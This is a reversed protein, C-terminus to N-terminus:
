KYWKIEKRNFALLGENKMKNMVENVKQRTSNTLQAIDKNTLFLDMQYYPGIDEGFERIFRPFFERIREEYTKFLLNQLRYELRKIKLGTLKLLYNHLARNKDMLEHLIINPVKCVRAKNLCIFKEGDEDEEAIFSTLGFLSGSGLVYEVYSQGEANSKILKVAGKKLFFLSKSGDVELVIEDGVSYSKMLSNDCLYKLETRKLRKALSFQSLYWYKSKRGTSM